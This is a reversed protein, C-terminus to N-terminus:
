IGFQDESWGYFRCLRRAHKMFWPGHHDSGDKEALSQALHLMEHAMMALAEGADDISARSLEIESRKTESFYTAAGRHKRTRTVLFHPWTAPMKLDALPGQRRLFEYSRGMYYFDLVFKVPKGGAQILLPRAGCRVNRRKQLRAADLSTPHRGQVTEPIVGRM